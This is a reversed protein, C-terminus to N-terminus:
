MRCLTTRTNRVWQHENGEPISSGPPIVAPCLLQPMSTEQIQTNVVCISTSVPGQPDLPLRGFGKLLPLMPPSAQIDLLALCVFIILLLMEPLHFLLHLLGSLFLSSLVNGACFSPQPKPILAVYPSVPWPCSNPCQQLCSLFGRSLKLHLFSM